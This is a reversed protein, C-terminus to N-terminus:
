MSCSGRTYYYFWFGSRQEGFIERTKRFMFVIAGTMGLICAMIITVSFYIMRILPGQCLFWITSAALLARFLHYILDHWPLIRLFTSSGIYGVRGFFLWYFYEESTTKEIMTKAVDALIIELEPSFRIRPKPASEIREM